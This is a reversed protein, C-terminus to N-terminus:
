SRPLYLQQCHVSQHSSAPRADQPICSATRRSLQRCPYVRSLRFHTTPLHYSVPPHLYDGPNIPQAVAGDGFQAFPNPMPTSLPSTPVTNFQVIPPGNALLANGPVNLTGFPSFSVSNRGALSSRPATDLPSVAEPSQGSSFATDVYLESPLERSFARSRRSLADRTRARQEELRQQFWNACFQLADSPQVRKADRTLDDILQDFTSM